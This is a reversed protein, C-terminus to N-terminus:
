DLSLSLRKSLEQLTAQVLEEQPKTADLVLWDKPSAKALALYFERVKQHFGTSESEFRDKPDKLRGLSVEIPLDLLVWLDPEVEGCILDKLSNCFDKSVGRGGCQFANTSAWYRDSLVWHGEKLAPEIVTDIHHKRDAYYLLTETEVSPVPGHPRLLINRIDKGLSTGGPERTHICHCGKQILNKEINQILTTKGSGDVGEFALFAM